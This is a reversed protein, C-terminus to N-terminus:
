CAWAATRCDSPPRRIGAPPFSASCAAALARSSRGRGRRQCRRLGRLAEQWGRQSWARQADHGRAAAADYLPQHNRPAFSRGARNRGLVYVNNTNSASVFLRAPSAFATRRGPGHALGHRHHPAGASPERDQEGNNVDYQGISGDAWSSVYFSKGSPHFLIRYAPPRDQNAFAGPGIASQHRDVSDRICTQRRLAPPWRARAAVDGIFDQPKRDKEAVVPFVRAPTLVGSALSFEFVRRGRVAASTSKTARRRSPWASGAMPCPPAASKRLRCRHRHRQHEASQLRREAGASVEQGAHRGDVHSAYRRSDAHGAPKIRWGSNLLFGGDALPGVQERPSPQSVLM